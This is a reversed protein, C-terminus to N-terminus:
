GQVKEVLALLRNAQQKLQELLNTLAEEPTNGFSYREDYSAEFETDSVKLLTFFEKSAWLESYGLQPGRSTFEINLIKM